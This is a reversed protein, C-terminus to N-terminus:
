HQITDFRWEAFIQAATKSRMFEVFKLAANVNQAGPFACVAVPIEDHLKAPIDCVYTIGEMLKPREGPTRTEYLCARYVIGADVRGMKVMSKLQAPFNAYVVKDRLKDWLKLRQLAQQACYGVSAGPKALGLTRLRESALDNISKLKAPNDAPAILSLRQLAVKVMDKPRLNRKRYVPEMERMGITIYVDPTAGDRVRNRLVLVNEIDERLKINKHEREFAQKIDAYPGTVGCPVFALITTVKGKAERKAKSPKTPVKGGYASRVAAAVAKKLQEKTWGGLMPNRLFSISEGDVTVTHKGNILFAGCSLGRKNREMMGEEVSWDIIVAYVKGPFEDILEKVFEEVWEHGGFGIPYFAEVKVKAKSDGFTRKWEISEESVPSPPVASTSVTESSTPKRMIIIVAVIALLVVLGGVIIAITQRQM